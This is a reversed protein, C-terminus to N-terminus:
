GPYVFIGDACRRSKSEVAFQIPTQVGRLNSRRKLRLPKPRLPLPTLRLLLLTPRPLPPMPRLLLPTLRLLLTWRPLPPMPRPPLPTPLLRLTPLLPMLRPLPPM